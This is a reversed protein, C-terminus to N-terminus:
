TPGSRTRIGLARSLSPSEPATSAMPSSVEVGEFLRARALSLYGARAGKDRLCRASGRSALAAETAGALVSPMRVVVAM